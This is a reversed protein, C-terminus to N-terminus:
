KTYEVIKVGWDRIARQCIVCPKALAPNGNKHYREVVLKHIPKTGARLLCAIEAHLYISNPKGALRAYKAQIPHTQTYSNASRALLRGRKDYARAVILHKHNM